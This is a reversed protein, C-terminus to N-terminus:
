AFFHTPLKKKEGEKDGFCGNGILSHQSLFVKLDPSCAKSFDSILSFDPFQKCDPNKPRRVYPPSM